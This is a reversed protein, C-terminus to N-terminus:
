LVFDLISCAHRCDALTLKPDLAVFRMLGSLGAAGTSEDLEQPPTEAIPQRCNCCRKAPFTLVGTGTLSTTLDEIEIKRL